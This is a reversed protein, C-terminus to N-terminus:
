TGGEPLVIRFGAPRYPSGAVGSDGAFTVLRPLQEAAEAPTLGRALILDLYTFEAIASAAWDVSTTYGSVPFPVTRRMEEVLPGEQMTLCASFHLLEVNDAYRLTESLAQPPITQGHVGLGAETGHSAVVVVVPDPLYTLDRCWHRLGAENGFFRHSFRVGPVRAFFEKLMNGFSYERDMLHRQWHAEIVVLGMHGPVQALRRGLWPRWAAGGDPTWEGEFAVGDGVLTFHGQGAAQPEQYRFELRGGQVQGQLTSSGPGEYSGAVQEGEQVLRLLGFSSDWTGEFGREGVWRHWREDGDQRWQGKFKCPRLLAFWGEGQAAPEQYRFVLRGRELRGELFCEQDNFHYVGELRDEQQELEMVGFTTYWRGAFSGATSQPAADGAKHFLNAFM